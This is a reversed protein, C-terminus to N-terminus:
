TPIIFQVAIVRACCHMLLYTFRHWCAPACMRINACTQETEALSPPTCVIPSLMRVVPCRRQQFLCLLIIQLTVAMLWFICRILIMLWILPVCLIILLHFCDNAGCHYTFSVSENSHDLWQLNNDLCFRSVFSEAPYNRHKAVNWDGGLVVSCGTYSDIIAQLCGLTAEYEELQWSSRDNWPMYVSCIVMNAQGSNCVRLATIRSNRTDVVSVRNSFFVVYLFPLVM